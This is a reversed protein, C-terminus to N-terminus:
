RINFITRFYFFLTQACSWTSTSSSFSFFGIIITSTHACYEVIPVGLMCCSLFFSIHFMIVDYMLIFQVTITSSALYFVCISSYLFKGFFYRFIWNEVSIPWTISVCVCLRLVFLFSFFGFHTPLIIGQLNSITNTGEMGEQEPDIILITCKSKRQKSCFFLPLRKSFTQWVLFDIDNLEFPHFHVFFDCKHICFWENKWLLQQTKGM